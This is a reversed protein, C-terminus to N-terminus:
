KHLMYIGLFSIFCLSSFHVWLRNSGKPINSTTLIDMSRSTPSSGSSGSCNLPLLVMLGVGSCVAFFKIRGLSNDWLKYFTFM